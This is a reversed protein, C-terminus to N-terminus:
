GDPKALTEIIACRNQGDLNQRCSRILKELETQMAQLDNVRQQIVGRKHEAMVRVENCDGDNLSLLENIENLTFGLEQARKIFHIRAISAAPYRRYGQLPKQPKEILSIRQYYRITEVNVGAQRALQGITLGNIQPNGSNRVM